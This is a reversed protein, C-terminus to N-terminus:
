PSVKRVESQPARQLRDREQDHEDTGDEEGVGGQDGADLALPLAGLVLLQEGAPGPM